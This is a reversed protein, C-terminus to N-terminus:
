AAEKKRTAVMAKYLREDPDTLTLGKGTFEQHILDLYRHIQESSMFRTVPLDFPPLMAAIKDAYSGKMLFRDYLERFKPSEARMIPVGHHLKCYARVDEPTQNGDSQAAIERVWLFQLRNQALSRADDKTIVATFPLKQQMIMALLADRDQESTIFLESM